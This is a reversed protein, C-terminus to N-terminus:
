QAGCTAHARIDLSLHHSSCYSTVMTCYPFSKNSYQLRGHSSAPFCYGVPLCPDKMQTIPVQITHMMSSHIIQIILVNRGQRLLLIENFRRWRSAVFSVWFVLRDMIRSTTSVFFGPAVCADVSYIWKQAVYMVLYTRIVALFLWCGCLVNCLVAPLCARIPTM